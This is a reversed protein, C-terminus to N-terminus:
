RVSVKGRPSSSKSSSAKSKSSTSKSGSSSTSKSGAKATTKSGSRAGTSKGNSQARGKAKGDLEPSRIAEQNMGGMALDNLKKDTEEEQHLIQEILPVCENLGLQQAWARATGYNCIEYHEVKQCSAIIVADMVLSPKGERLHEDGEEIVGQMGRCVKGSTKFGCMKAVQDLLKIQENTQGLHMNIANRLEEHTCKKAIKPLAKTLQKEANYCDKILDEFAERMSNM